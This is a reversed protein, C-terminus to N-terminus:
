KGHCAKFKKGSGCPCNDNRGIKPELRKVPEQKVPERTDFIEQQETEDDGFVEHSARVGKMDTKEEQAEQINSQEAMPIGAKFLFGVINKNIDGVMTKFLGFAELKYILLPDKQELGAM